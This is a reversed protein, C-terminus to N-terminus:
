FSLFFVIFVYAGILALATAAIFQIGTLEKEHM